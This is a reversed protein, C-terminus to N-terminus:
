KTCHIKLSPQEKSLILFEPIVARLELRGNVTSLIKDLALGASDFATEMGSSNADIGLDFM